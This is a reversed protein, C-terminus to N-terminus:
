MTIPENLYNKISNLLFDLSHDNSRNTWAPSQDFSDIANPAVFNLKKYLPSTKGTVFGIECNAEDSLPKIYFKKANTKIGHDELKNLLKPHIFKLEKERRRQFYPQQEREFQFGADEMKKRLDDYITDRNQM